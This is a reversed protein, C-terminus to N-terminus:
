EPRLSRTGTSYENEPIALTNITQKQYTHM